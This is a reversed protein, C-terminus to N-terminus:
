QRIQSIVPCFADIGQGQLQREVLKEYRSRTRIAYLAVRGQNGGSEDAPVAGDM